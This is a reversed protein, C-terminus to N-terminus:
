FPAHMGLQAVLSRSQAPAAPSAPASPPAARQVESWVSRIFQPAQPVTHPVSWTQAPPVHVNMHVPVVVSHLV